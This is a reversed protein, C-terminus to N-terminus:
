RINYLRPLLPEIVFKNEDRSIVNVHETQLQQIYRFKKEKDYSLTTQPKSNNRRGLKTTQKTLVERVCM